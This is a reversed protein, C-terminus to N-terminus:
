QRPDDEGVAQGAGHSQTEGPEAQDGVAEPSPAPAQNSPSTAADGGDDGYVVEWVVAVDATHHQAPRGIARDLLEIACDKRLRPTLKKNRMFERLLRLAEQVDDGMGEAVKAARAPRGNKSGKPRGAGQRKGGRGDTM